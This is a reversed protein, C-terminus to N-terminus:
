IDVPTNSKNTGTRTGKTRLKDRKKGPVKSLKEFLPSVTRTTLENPLAKPARATNCCCWGVCACWGRAHVSNVFGLLCVYLTCVVDM